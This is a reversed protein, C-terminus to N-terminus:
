HTVPAIPTCDSYSIKQSATRIRRSEAKGPTKHSSLPRIPEVTSYLRMANAGGPLTFLKKIYLAQQFLTKSRGKPCTLDIAREVIVTKPEPEPKCCEAVFREVTWKAGEDEKDDTKSKSLDEPELHLDSDELLGCKLDAKLYVRQESRGRRNKKLDIRMLAGGDITDDIAQIILVGDSDEEWKGSDRIHFLEIDQGDRVAAAGSRNIQVLVIIAIRLKKAISKLRRAVMSADEFPTKADPCHVWSSQDVLVLPARAARIIGEIEDINTTVCDIDLPLTALKDMASATRGREAETIAYPKQYNELALIPVRAEQAVLKRASALDEDELTFWLTPSGAAAARRAINAAATSKGRGTLGAVAYMGGAVLGGGLAVDLATFTTPIRAPPNLLEPDRLLDSLKRTTTRPSEEIEGCLETLAETGKGTKAADILRYATEVAKRDNSYRKVTRCYDEINGPSGGEMFVQSLYDQGGCLELLGHERLENRLKVEDSYEISKMYAFLQQHRKDYLHGPMLEEAAIRHAREDSMMAGLLAREAGVDNQPVEDFVNRNSM